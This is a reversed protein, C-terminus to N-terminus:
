AVNGAGVVSLDTPNGYVANLAVAEKVLEIVISRELRTQQVFALTAMEYKGSPKLRPEIGRLRKGRWFGFLVRSEEARIVLVPGNSLYVLNGWKIVEELSAATVVASRLAEVHLKQWGGLAAVYAEPNAAAVSKKM